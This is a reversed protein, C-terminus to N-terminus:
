QDGGRGGRGDRGSYHCREGVIRTEVRVGDWSAGENAGDVRAEGCDESKGGCVGWFAADVFREGAFSQDVEGVRTGEWVM